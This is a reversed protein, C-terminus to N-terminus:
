GTNAGAPTGPETTIYHPRSQYALGQVGANAAGAALAIAGLVTAKRFPTVAVFLEQKRM